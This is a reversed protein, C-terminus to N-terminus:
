YNPNSRARMLACTETGKTWWNVMVTPGLNQIHHFWGAPMYLVDGPGVDVIMKNLYKLAAETGKKNPTRQNPDNVNAWCLAKNKGICEPNLMRWDSTPALTFRKTGMVMMVFNDCCDHHFRTDSSSTGMWFTPLQWFDKNEDDGKVLPPKQINLKKVAEVKIKLNRPFSRLKGQKALEEDREIAVLGPGIDLEEESRRIGNAVFQEQVKSTSDREDYPFMLKLEALSYNVTEFGLHRLNEFNFVVPQGMRRFRNHFENVTLQIERRLRPVVRKVPYTRYQKEYGKLAWWLGKRPLKYPLSYATTLSPVTIFSSSKYEEYNSFLEEDTHASTLIIPENNADGEETEENDEEIEDDNEDITAKVEGSAYSADNNEYIPYSEKFGQMLQVARLNTNREEVSGIDDDIVKVESNVNAGAKGMVYGTSFTVGILAALVLFLYHQKMVRLVQKTWSKNFKDDKEDSSTDASVRKILRQFTSGEEKRM